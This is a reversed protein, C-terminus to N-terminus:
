NVQMIISFSYVDAKDMAQNESGWRLIEPAIWLQAIADSEDVMTPLDCFQALCQFDTLSIKVRMHLDFYCSSTSLSGHYGVGKMHIFEMGHALDHLVVLKFPWDWRVNIVDLFERLCARGAGEFVAVYLRRDLMSGILKQVNPHDLGARLVEMRELLERKSAGDQIKFARLGVPSGHLYCPLLPPNHFFCQELLQRRLKTVGEPYESWVVANRKVIRSVSRMFDDMLIFNCPKYIKLFTGACRQQMADSSHSQRFRRRQSYQFILAITLLILMIFGTRVIWKKSEVKPLLFVTDNIPPVASITCNTGPKFTVRCYFQERLPGEGDPVFINYVKAFLTDESSVEITVNEVIEDFAKELYRASLGPEGRPFIAIAKRLQFFREALLILRNRAMQLSERKKQKMHAMQAAISLLRQCANIFPNRGVDESCDYLARLQFVQTSSHLYEPAMQEYEEPFLNVIGELSHRFEYDIYIFKLANMIEEFYTVTRRFWTVFASMYGCVIVVRNTGRFQNLINFLHGRGLKNSSLVKVVRQKHLTNRYLGDIFDNCWDNKVTDYTDRIHLVAIKTDKGVYALLLKAYHLASSLLPLVEYFSVVTRKRPYTMTLYFEQFFPGYYMEPKLLSILCMRYKCGATTRLCISLRPLSGYMTSLCDFYALSDLITNNLMTILYWSFMHDPSTFSGLAESDKKSMQNCNIYCASVLTREPLSQAYIEDCDKVDLEPQQTNGDPYWQGFSRFLGSEYGYFTHLTVTLILLSRINMGAEEM